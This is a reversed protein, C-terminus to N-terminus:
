DKAASSSRGDGAPSKKELAKVAQLAIEAEERQPSKTADVAAQYGRLAAAFDEKSVYGKKKYGEKLANLSDDYGLKAAIIWHKAAREIRGNKWELYGLNHRAFDHGGIAAEELHYLTKKEDKEVGEGLHYM